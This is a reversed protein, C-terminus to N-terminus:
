PARLNVLRPSRSHIGFTAEGYCLSPFTRWGGVPERRRRRWLTRLRIPSCSAFSFYVVVWDCKVSAHSVSHSNVMSNTIKFLMVSFEFFDIEGNSDEDIELVMEHLNQRNIKVGMDKFARYLETEDISGSLKARSPPPPYFYAHSHSPREHFPRVQHGVRVCVCTYCNSAPAREFSVDDDLLDFITQYEALTDDDVYDLLNETNIDSYDVKDDDGEEGDGDGESYKAQEKQPSLLQRFSHRRNELILVVAAVQQRVDVFTLM